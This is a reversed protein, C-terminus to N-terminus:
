KRVIYHQNNIRGFSMEIQYKKQFIHHLIVTYLLQNWSRAVWDSKQSCHNGPLYKSLRIWLGTLRRLHLTKCFNNVIQRQNRFSKYFMKFSVTRHNCLTSFTTLLAKINLNLFVLDELYYVQKESRKIFVKSLHKRTTKPNIFNVQLLSNNSNNNNNNNVIYLQCILTLTYVFM